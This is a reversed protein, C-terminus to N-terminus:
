ISSNFMAVDVALAGREENLTRRVVADVQTTSIRHLPTRRIQHLVAPRTGPDPDPRGPLIKDVIM